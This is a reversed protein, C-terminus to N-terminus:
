LSKIMEVMNPQPFLDTKEKNVNTHSLLGEVKGYYADNNFEFTEAPTKTKLWTKLGNQINLKPHRRQIERILLKTSEIQADTYAHWYQNGRFKYGLDCVFKAPVEVNVYNYFKDGKKTLQGFNCIEIGISQPHLKSSGNKGLHYAYGSDPLCEVVEGDYKADGDKISTGGICFQTAIRGRDDNNWAKITAYPNNWGATHHLFLYIKDTPGALYEDKDLYSKTIVLGEKTKLVNSSLDTDLFEDLDVGMAKATTNGVIGDVTLKNKTQFEKVFKETTPGFDGDEKLGLAAQIAKVADTNNNSGKKLIMKDTKIYSIIDIYTYRYYSKDKFIQYNLYFSKYKYDSFM